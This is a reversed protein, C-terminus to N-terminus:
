EGRPGFVQRLCRERLINFKERNIKVIPLEDLPEIIAGCNNCVSGFPSSYNGMKESLIMDCVFGCNECKKRM